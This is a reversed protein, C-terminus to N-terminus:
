STVGFFSIKMDSQISPADTRDHYVKEEPSLIDHYANEENFAEAEFLVERKTIFSVVEPDDIIVYEDMVPPDSMESSVLVSDGSGGSPVSGEGVGPGGARPSSEGTKKEEEGVELRRWPKGKVKSKSM